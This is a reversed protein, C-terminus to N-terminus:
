YRRGCYEGVLMEGMINSNQGEFGPTISLHLIISLRKSPVFLCSVLCLNVTVFCYFLFSGKGPDVYSFAIKVTRALCAVKCCSLHM